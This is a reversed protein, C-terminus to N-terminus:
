IGKVGILRRHCISFFFICVGKQFDLFSLLSLFFPDLILWSFASQSALNFSLLAPGGKM